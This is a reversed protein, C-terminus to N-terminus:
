CSQASAQQAKEMNSDASEKVYRERAWSSGLTTGPGISSRQVKGKVSAVTEIDSITRTRSEVQKERDTVSIITLGYLLVLAMDM